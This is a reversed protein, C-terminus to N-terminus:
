KELLTKELLTRSVGIDTIFIKGCFFPGQNLFFGRKAALFTVTYSAKIAVPLAIGSDPSLGSPIDCAIIPKAAMNVTNITEQLFPSLEGRLGVGLIGDVIFDTEQLLSAFAKQAEELAYLAIGINKLLQKQALVEQNYEKENVSVANVTYGRNALKRGCALSDAGNNGKGAIILAKTGLSLRNIIEALNSSANEILMRESFGLLKAKEELKRIESVSLSETM